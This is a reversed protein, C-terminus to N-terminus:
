VMKEERNSKAHVRVGKLAQPFGEWEDDAQHPTIVGAGPEAPAHIVFDYEQIGDEPFVIYERRALRPTHHSTTSAEGLATVQLKPPNTKHIHLNVGTVKFIRQTNM